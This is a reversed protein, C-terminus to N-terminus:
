TMSVAVFLTKLDIVTPDPGVAKPLKIPGAVDVPPYRGNTRAEYTPVFDTFYCIYDKTFFYAMKRNPKRGATAPHRVPIICGSGVSVRM